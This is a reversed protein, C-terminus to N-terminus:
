ANQVELAANFGKLTLDWEDEYGGKKKEILRRSVLSWFTPWALSRLVNYRMGDENHTGVFPRPQHKAPEFKSFWMSDSCPYKIVAGEIMEVLIPLQASTPPKDRLAPNKSGYRPMLMIHSPM